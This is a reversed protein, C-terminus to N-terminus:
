DIVALKGHGKGEICLEHMKCECRFTKLRSMCRLTTTFRVKESVSPFTPRTVCDRQYGDPTRHVDYVVLLNNFVSSMCCGM